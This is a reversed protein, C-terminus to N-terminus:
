SETIKNIGRIKRLLYEKPEKLNLDEAIKEDSLSQNHWSDYDIMTRKMVIPDLHFM